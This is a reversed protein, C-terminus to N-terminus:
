RKRMSKIRRVVDASRIPLPGPQAMSQLEFSQPYFAQLYHFFQASHTQEVVLAHTVGDLARRMREPQVPMLLRPAVVRAKIGELELEALAERVPALSSGWTIIAMEGDGETVAWHDGYDHDALKDRRKDLQQLHDEARSSPTGYPSHELGDATHQCGPMGPLAMPSVGNGGVAYRQYGEMPTAQISRGSVFAVDAPREIVARTQGLSQDTLVIAATQLTEALHVSWQTTFLCDAVSVPALVLHPADGHLGYLAINLDSQESKTPIGTSPGGRMVDIVVIPTESAVALGISETMLALGPGSTATLSPTGGFSAGILQNVSALEDEAQVLVGGIKELSPALWELVETAPTIPYAAVFRIGGRVAGLGAAENGSINWLECGSGAPSGLSFTGVDSGANAAGADVGALSAAIADAGKSKLHRELVSRLSDMPMGILAGIVGLAVMNPRGGEIGRALDNVPLTVTRAGSEVFVDPTEAGTDGIVLSDADLPIEAAFRDANLWDIGLLIDFRNSSSSVPVPSLRLMAAAEGGRIQPGSSRTMTGYWGARGAAELLLSGATMVGSGGSGVIAISLSPAIRSM